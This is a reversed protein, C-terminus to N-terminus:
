LLLTGRKGFSKSQNAKQSSIIHKWLLTSKKSISETMEHLCSNVQQEFVIDYTIMDIIIQVIEIHETIEKIWLLFRM